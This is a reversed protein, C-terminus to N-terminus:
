NEVSIHIIKPRIASYYEFKYQIFNLPTIILNKITIFSIISRFYALHFTVLIKQSFM